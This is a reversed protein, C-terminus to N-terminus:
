GDSWLDAADLNHQNWYTNLATKALATDQPIDIYEAHRHRIHLCKLYHLKQRTTQEYGLKYLNLQLRIRPLDLHIMRKIQAIGQGKQHPSTVLLDFMGAAIVVGHHKILIPCNQDLVDFQHARKLNLYSTLEPHVSKLAHAEYDKIMAQLSQGKEAAKELRIPDIRATKRPMLTAILQSVSMVPKGDVVYQHKISDFHITHDNLKYVTM